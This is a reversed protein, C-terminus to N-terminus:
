FVIDLPQFGSCKCLMFKSWKSSHTIEAPIHNTLQMLKAIFELWERGKRERLPRKWKLTINSIILTYCPGIKIKWLVQKTPLCNLLPHCETTFKSLPLLPVDVNNDGESYAWTAEILSTWYTSCTYSTGVWTSMVNWNEEGVGGEERSWWVVAEWGFPGLYLAPYVATGGHLTGVLRDGAHTVVVAM